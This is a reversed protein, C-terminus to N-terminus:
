NSVGNSQKNKKNIEQKEKERIKDTKSLNNLQHELMLLNNLPLKGLNEREKDYYTHKQCVKSYKVLWKIHEIIKLKKRATPDGNTDHEAENRERWCEYVFNWIILLLDKGWKEATMRRLRNGSQYLTFNYLESWTISIRGKIFNEWGIQTQEEVARILTPSADEVLVKVPECEKGNVLGMLYHKLVRSVAPHTETNVFYRNLDNGLEKRLKERKKCLPCQLVHIQTEVTEICVMCKDNRFPYYTNERKNCSWRGHIYKQIIMAKTKSYNAIAKSQPTWWIKDTIKESWEQSNILHERLNMSNYARRLHTTHHAVVKMGNLKLTAKTNPM